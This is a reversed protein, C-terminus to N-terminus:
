LGGGAVPISSDCFSKLKAKDQSTNALVVEGANVKYYVANTNCPNLNSNLTYVARRTVNMQAITLTNDYVSLNDSIVKVSNNSFDFEFHIFIFCLIACTMYGLLFSSFDFDEYDKNSMLWGCSRM